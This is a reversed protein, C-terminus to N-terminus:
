FSRRRRSSSGAKDGHTGRMSRGSCFVVRYIVLAAVACLILVAILEM